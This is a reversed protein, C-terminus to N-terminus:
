IGVPELQEIMIELCDMIDEFEIGEAYDFNKQYKNWREKLAESNKIIDLAEFSNGNYERKTFTKDIAKRFHDLNINKWEKTYILYIDYFDKARGNLELRSLITEIKEALVTEMNYAYLDIYYDGLLPLYKYRIERPTIPDGTAIDIHIPEHMEDYNVIMSVRFGGYEDEDRIPAISAYDMKANDDINISIIEKIMNIITEEDFNANRFSTDIDVTARNELGFLTSLYFGGKLVFNDRYKSTSLRELFRDYMYLRLLTNFKINKEKAINKLKAKLQMSNM